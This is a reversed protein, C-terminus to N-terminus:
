EYAKESFADSLMFEKLEAYTADSNYRRLFQKGKELTVSLKSMDANPIPSNEEINTMIEDSSITIYVGDLVESQEFDPYQKGQIANDLMALPFFIEEYNPLYLTQVIGTGVDDILAQDSQFGATLLKTDPDALGNGIASVLAPYIFQQGACLGVIADLDQNEPENFFSEDMPRFMLVTGEEGTVEIPEDATKNYEEVEARFTQDAITYQPYAFGPFMAVAVKKYGKQVVDDFYMKGIDVGSAYGGAVTGLFKDNTTASASAGEPGYVSGMDTALGAVYLDPYEDLINSIGGDQMAILGVVDNTMANKVAQLNGAPDNSGDGYVIEYTYGLEATWMDLFAINFDYVAGSSNSSLFLIKGGKTEDNSTDTSEESSSENTQSNSDSADTNTDTTTDETACATLITLVLLVALVNTLLKKGLLKMIFDEKFNKMNKKYSVSM